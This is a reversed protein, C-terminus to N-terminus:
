NEFFSEVKKIQNEGKPESLKDYINFGSEDLKIYNKLTIEIEMLNEVKEKTIEEKGSKRDIFIHIFELKTINLYFEILYLDDCFYSSSLLFLRENEREISNYMLVRLNKEINNKINDIFPSMSYLDFCKLYYTLTSNLRIMNNFDDNNLELKNQLSRLEEYNM